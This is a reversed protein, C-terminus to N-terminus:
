SFGEGGLGREWLYLPSCYLVVINAMKVGRGRPSPNPHPDEHTIEGVTELDHIGNEL